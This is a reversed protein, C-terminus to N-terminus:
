LSTKTGVLETELRRGLRALRAHAYAQGIFKGAGIALICVLLELALWSLVNEAFRARFAVDVTVSAAIAALFLATSVNCGCDHSLSNFRSELLASRAAPIQPLSLVFKTNRPAASIRRLSAIDTIRLENSM